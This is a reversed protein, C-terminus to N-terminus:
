ATHHDIARVTITKRGDRLEEGSIGEVEPDEALAAHVIRREAASYPGLEKSGGWRRLEKALDLVMKRLQEERESNLRPQGPERPQRKTEPPRPEDGAGKERDRSGGDVDIAVNVAGKFQQSLACNLLYELSEVVRGRRGILRGPEDSSLEVVTQGDEREGIKVEASLGILSILNSLISTAMQREEQNLAM